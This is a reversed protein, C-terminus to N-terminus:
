GLFINYTLPFISDLLSIQVETLRNLPLGYWTLEFYHRYDQGALHTFRWRMPIKIGFLRMWGRGSAVATKIMPVAEGYKLRFFREVPAPLGAPLPATPLEPQPQLVSAFSAPKIKLGLCGLLFLGVIIGVLVLLVEM